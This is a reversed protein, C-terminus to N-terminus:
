VIMNDNTVIMGGQIPNFIKSKESSYFAVDGYNGVKTGKYVAGTAHACDEIVRLGHRQALELLAEYDRCVLGYLHQILIAKTKSSIKAEVQAVDLGYSELEIDCYVVKIGDYKFANPVVVCTYAPMIVEDGPMLDLAKICASLAERGSMYAFAYSSGNWKAFEDEYASVIGQNEWQDKNRLLRKALAMDDKDLTMSGLPPGKVRSGIALRGIRRLRRELCIDSVTPIAM